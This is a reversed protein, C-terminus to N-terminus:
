KNKKRYYHIGCYTFLVTYASVMSGFLFSLFYNQNVFNMIFQPFICTMFIIFVPLMRGKFVREMMALKSEEDSFIDENENLDKKAKRFYTYDVFKLIYEWGCDNFLTIYEEMSNTDQKFDLRYIVDEKECAEFHYMGLGTIKTLKWGNLHQNHLYEEEKEHNFITFYKFEKKTNM